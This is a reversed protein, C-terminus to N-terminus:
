PTKGLIRELPWDYVVAPPWTGEHYARLLRHATAQARVATAEDIWHRARAALLEDEDLIVTTGDVDAWVDVFLDTTRWETPSVFEVPTIVNAYLGTYRQDATHFRGVDYDAEPFTFWVAPAGNELVTRGTVTVPRALPTARMITVIVSADAHVLENEYVTIRDPLRRYHIKVAAM